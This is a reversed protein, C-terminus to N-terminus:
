FFDIKHEFKQGVITDTKSSIKTIRVIYESNSLFFCDPDNVRFTFQSPEIVEINENNCREEYRGVIQQLPTEHKRLMEKLEKMYNEFTFASCNDLSGHLHYDDVLRTFLYKENTNLYLYLYM